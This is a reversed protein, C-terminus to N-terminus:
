RTHLAECSKCWHVTGAKLRLQLEEDPVLQVTRALCRRCHRPLEEAEDVWHCTSCHYIIM